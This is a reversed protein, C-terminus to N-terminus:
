WSSTVQYERLEGTWDCGEDNQKCKIKLSLIDRKWAEDLFFQSSLATLIHLLVVHQGSQFYYNSSFFKWARGFFEVLSYTSDLKAKLPIKSSDLYKWVPRTWYLKKSNKRKNIAYTSFSTTPKVLNAFIEFFWWLTFLLFTSKVFNVFIEFFWLSLM